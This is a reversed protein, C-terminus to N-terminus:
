SHRGEQDRQALMKRSWISFLQFADFRTYVLKHGLPSKLALLRNVLDMPTPQPSESLARSIEAAMARAIENPEVDELRPTPRSQAGPGEPAQGTIEGNHISVGGGDRLGTVAPSM